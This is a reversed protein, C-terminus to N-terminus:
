TLEDASVASSLMSRPIAFKKPWRLRLDLGGHRREGFLQAPSHAIEGRLRRRATHRVQPLSCPACHM